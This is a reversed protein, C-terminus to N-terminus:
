DSDSDSESNSDWFTEFHFTKLRIGRYNETCLLLSVIKSHGRIYALQLALFGSYTRKNLDLNSHTLLVRVCEVDGLECLVHLVTKGDKMQKANIDANKSLLLKM